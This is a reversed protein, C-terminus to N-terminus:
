VNVASMEGVSDNQQVNRRLVGLADIEALVIEVRIRSLYRARDVHGLSTAFDQQVFGLLRPWVSDFTVSLRESVVIVGRSITLRANRNSRGGRRGTRMSDNPTHSVALALTARDLWKTGETSPSSSHPHTQACVSIGLM